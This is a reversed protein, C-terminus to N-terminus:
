RRELRRRADAALAEVDVNALAPFATELAAEVEDAVSHAPEIGGSMRQAIALGVRAEVAREVNLVGIDVAELYRAAAAPQAPRV